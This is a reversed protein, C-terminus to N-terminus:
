DSLPWVGVEGEVLTEVATPLERFFNLGSREEVADVTVRFTTFDASRATNQEMVFATVKLTSTSGRKGIAVIKWYGSPVVHTEDAGPLEDMDEEYLPGTMVWVERNTRVLDRVSEELHMWPGQNLDKKQPTINSLYNTARSAMTSKFSALPAQHGRDTNLDRSADKYDDPELTENEDLWPDARWKREPDTQDWIMTPDIRYCVWDAFKTDDNNSLAIADRIIMDNSIPAGSPYGWFFHKCHIESPEHTGSGIALISLTGAALVLVTSSRIRHM